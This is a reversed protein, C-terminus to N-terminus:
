NCGDDGGIKGVTFIMLFSFMSLISYDFNNNWLPMHTITPIIHKIPVLVYTKGTFIFYCMVIASIFVGLLGILQLRGWNDM